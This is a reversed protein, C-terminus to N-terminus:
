FKEFKKASSRGTKQVKLVNFRITKSLPRHPPSITLHHAFIVQYLIVFRCQGMTVLDGPVVGVFAPSLHAIINKHRKEYRDYKKVYHLYERRVLVSRNMKTSKVIGTLIRGRISITESTFPCKHDVYSQTIATAPTKFGLGVNKFWRRPARRSGDTKANQFINQSQFAKEVQIGCAIITTLM